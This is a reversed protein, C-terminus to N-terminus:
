SSSVSIDPGRGRNRLGAARGSSVFGSQSELRWGDTHKSLVVQRLGGALRSSLQVTVRSNGYPTVRVIQPSTMEYCQLGPRGEADLRPKKPIVLLKLEGDLRRTPYNGSRRTGALELYGEIQEIVDSSVLRGAMKKLQEQALRARHNAEVADLVAYPSIAM